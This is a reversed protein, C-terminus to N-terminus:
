SPPPVSTRSDRPERPFGSYAGRKQPNWNREGGDEPAANLANVAGGRLIPWHRRDIEAGRPHEEDLVVRFQLGHEICQEGLVTVLDLDGGVPVAAQV